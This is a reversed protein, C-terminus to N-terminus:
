NRANENSLMRYHNNYIRYYDGEKEFTWVQDAFYQGNYCGVDTQSSGWKTLRWNKRYLNYILYGNHVTKSKEIKWLQDPFVEIEYTGCDRQSETGWQALRAYPYFKNVLYYAGEQIEDPM